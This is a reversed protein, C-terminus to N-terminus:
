MRCTPAAPAASFTLPRIRRRHSRDLDGLPTPRRRRGARTRGYRGSTKTQQFPYEDYVVNTAVGSARIASFVTVPGMISAIMLLGAAAVQRASTDRSLGDRGPLRRAVSSLVVSRGTPDRYCLIALTAYVFPDYLLILFPLRLEGVHIVPGLFQTYTLMGIKMWALQFLGNIPFSVIWATIFVTWLPRRQAFSGPAARKLLGRRALWFMSGGIALYYSAYGGLFAAAPESLPAHRVWLWDTPLHAAAPNLSAFTAWNAIPDVLGTFIAGLAIIAAWHLRRQRYSIGLLVAFLVVSQTMSGIVYPAGEVVGTISLTEPGPIPNAIRPDYAVGARMNTVVVVVFAALLMAFVVWGSRSGPRDREYTVAPLVESTM